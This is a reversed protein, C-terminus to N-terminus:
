ALMYNCQGIRWCATRQSAINSLGRTGQQAYLINRHPVKTAVIRAASEKFDYSVHIIQIGGPGYDAKWLGAMPHRKSQTPRFIRELHMVEVARGQIGADACCLPKCSEGNDM